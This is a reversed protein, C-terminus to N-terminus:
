PEGLYKHALNLHIEAQKGQFRINAQGFDLLKRNCNM